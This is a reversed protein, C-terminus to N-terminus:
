TWIDLNQRFLVVEGCMYSKKQLTLIWVVIDNLQVAYELLWKQSTTM